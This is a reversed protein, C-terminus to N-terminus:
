GTFGGHRAAAGVELCRRLGALIETLCAEFHIRTTKKSQLYDDISRYSIKSVGLRFKSDILELETTSLKSLCYSLQDIGVGQLLERADNISLKDMTKKQDDINEVCEKSFRYFYGKVTKASRPLNKDEGHQKKIHKAVQEFHEEQCRYAISSEKALERSIRDLREWTKVKHASIGMETAIVERRNHEFYLWLKRAFAQKPIVAVGQYEKRGQLAKLDNELERALWKVGTLLSMAKQWLGLRDELVYDAVRRTLTDLYEETLFGIDPEDKCLGELLRDSQQLGLKILENRLLKWDSGFWDRERKVLLNM